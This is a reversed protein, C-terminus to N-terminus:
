PFFYQCPSPIELDSPFLVRYMETWKEPETQGRKRLRLLREQEYDYGEVELGDSPNCPTPSKSHEKLEASTEFTSCCRECSIPLKHRRYVHERLSILFPKLPLLSMCMSPEISM